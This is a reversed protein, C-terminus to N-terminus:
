ELDIADLTVAQKRLEIATGELRELIGPDTVLWGGDQLGANGYDHVLAVTRDFLLYDFVQDNPYEERGGTRDIIYIKEGANVRARYNIVEWKLYPTLPRRVIRLRAYDLGRDRVDDYLPRDADVERPLEQRIGAHDGALYAALSRKSPEQYTQWCEVKLFRRRLASWARQFEAGFGEPSLRTSRSLAWAPPRV